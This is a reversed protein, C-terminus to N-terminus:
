MGGDQRNIRKMRRDLERLGANDAILTGVYLPRRTDSDGGMYSPQPARHAQAELVRSVIEEVNNAAEEKHYSSFQAVGGDRQGLANALPAVMEWTPIAAALAAGIHRMAQPQELPVIAENLGFEGARFLGDGTIMGGLKFQPVDAAGYKINGIWKEWDGTDYRKVLQGKKREDGDVIDLNYIYYVVPEGDKSMKNENIAIRSGTISIDGSVDHWFDEHGYKSNTATQEWSGTKENWANSAAASYQVKGNSLTRKAYGEKDSKFIDVVSGTLNTMNAQHRAVISESSNYVEKLKKAQEQAAQLAQTQKDVIETFRGGQLAMNNNIAVWADDLNEYVSGPHDKMLADQITQPLDSFKMYGLAAADVESLDKDTILKLNGWGNDATIGLAALANKTETDVRGMGDITDQKLADMMNNYDTESNIKLDKLKEKTADDIDTWKLETDSKLLGFKLDAAELLKDHNDDYQEKSNIGLEALKEIQKENLDDWSLLSNDRMLGIDSIALSILASSAKGYEEESNIGLQRLRAIQVINLDDWGKVVGDQILGLSNNSLRLLLDANNDYEDISDIGLKKLCEVQVASLNDYGVITTGVQDTFLKKTEADMTSFARRISATNEDGWHAWGTLVEGTLTIFGDETALGANQLQKKLDDPLASWLENNDILIETLYNQGSEQIKSLVDNTNVLVVGGEQYVEAGIAELFKRVDGSVEDSSWETIAKRWQEGLKNIAVYLHENGEEDLASQMTIGANEFAAKLAESYDDGLLGTDIEVGAASAFMSEGHLKGYNTIVDLDKFAQQLNTSMRALVEPDLSALLQHMTQAGTLYGTDTITASTLGTEQNQALNIGIGKLAEITAASVSTLDIGNLNYTVGKIAQSLATEDLTINVKEDGNYGAGKSLIIGAEKLSMKEFDSIDGLDYDVSREHGSKGANVAQTAVTVTGDANINVGIGNLVKMADANARLQEVVIEEGGVEVTKPFTMTFGTVNDRLKEVDISMEYMAESVASIYVGTATGLEDLASTDIHTFDVGEFMRRAYGTIAENTLAAIDITPVDSNLLEYAKWNMLASQYSSIYDHVNIVAQILESMTSADAGWSQIVETATDEGVLRIYEMARTYSNFYDDLRALQMPDMDSIRDKWLKGLDTTSKGHKLNEIEGSAYLSYLQSLIKEEDPFELDIEYDKGSSTYGTGYLRDGNKRYGATSYGLLKKIAYDVQMTDQKTGGTNTASWDFVSRKGIDEVKRKDVWSWFNMDPLINEYIYREADWQAKRAQEDTAGQQKAQDYAWGHDNVMKSWEESAVNAANYSGTAYMLGNTALAAVASSVLGIIAGPVAGVSGGAIAGTIASTVADAIITTLAGTVVLNQAGVEALDWGSYLNGSDNLKTGNIGDRSLLTLDYGSAGSLLKQYLGYEDFGQSGVDLAQKLAFAVDLGSIGVANPTLTYKVAKGAAGEGTLMRGLGEKLDLLISDKLTSAGADTYWGAKVAKLFDDYGDGFVEKAINELEKETQKGSMGEFDYGRLFTDWLDDATKTGDALSDSFERVRKAFEIYNRVSESDGNFAFNKFLLEELDDNILADYLPTKAVRGGEGLISDKAAHSYIVKEIQEENLPTGFRSYNKITNDIQEVFGADSSNLAERLVNKYEDSLTSSNFFDELSTFTQSSGSSKIFNSAKAFTNSLANKGGSIANSFTESINDAVGKASTKLKDALRAFLGKNFADVVDDSANFSVDSAKVIGDFVDELSNGKEIQEVLQDAIDKGLKEAADQTADPTLKEAVEELAERVPKDAATEGSGKIADVVDSIDEEGAGFKVTGEQWPLATRNGFGSATNLADQYEKAAKKISAIDEKSLGFDRALKADVYESSGNTGYESALDTYMRGISQRLTEYDFPTNTTFASMDGKSVARWMDVVGTRGYIGELKEATKILTNYMDSYDGNILKVADYPQKVTDGLALTLKSVLDNYQNLLNPGSDNLEKSAKSLYALLADFADGYTKSDQTFGAFNYKVNAGNILLENGSVLLKNSDLLTDKITTIESQLGAIDGSTVAENFRTTVYGLLSDVSGSIREAQAISSADFLKDQVIKLENKVANGAERIDSRVDDLKYFRSEGAGYGALTETGGVPLANESMLMRLTMARYLDDTMNSFAKAFQERQEDTATIFIVNTNNAISRKDVTKVAKAVKQLATNTFDNIVVKSTELETFAKKFAEYVQDHVGSATNNAGSWTGTIDTYALMLDNNSAALAAKLQNMLEPHTSGFVKEVDSVNVVSKIVGEELSTLSQMGLKELRELTATASSTATATHTLVNYVDGELNLLGKISMAMTGSSNIGSMGDIFDTEFITRLTPTLVESMVEGAAKQFASTLSTAVEKQSGGFAYDLLSAASMGYSTYAINSNGYKVAALLTRRLAKTDGRLPKLLKIGDRLAAEQNISYEAILGTNERVFLTNNNITNVENKLAKWYDIEPGNKNTGELVENFQDIFTLWSDNVATRLTDAQPVNYAHTYGNIKITDTNDKIVSLKDKIQTLLDNAKADVATNLKDVEIILRKNAEFLNNLSTPDNIMSLTKILDGPAEGLTGENTLADTLMTRLASIRNESTYNSLQESLESLLQNNKYLFQIQEPSGIEEAIKKEFDDLAEVFSDYMDLAPKEVISTIDAPAAGKNQKIIDDSIAQSLKKISEDSIRLDKAESSKALDHTFTLAKHWEPNTSKLLRNYEVNAIHEIRQGIDATSFGDRIAGAIKNYYEKFASGNTIMAQKEASKALRDAASALELESTYNTDTYSLKELKGTQTRLEKKINDLQKYQDASLTYEGVKKINNEISSILKNAATNTEESFIGEFKSLHNELAAYTDRGTSGRQGAVGLANRGSEILATTNKALEDRMNGVEELLENSIKVLENYEVSKGTSYTAGTSDLYEMVRTVFSIAKDQALRQPSAVVKRLMGVDNSLTDLIDKTEAYSAGFRSLLSTSTTVQANLKRVSTKLPEIETLLLSSTAKNGKSLEIEALAAANDIQTQIKIVEKADKEINTLLDLASKYDDYSFSAPLGQRVRVNTIDELAGKLKNFSYNQDTLLATIDGGSVTTSVIRDVQGTLLTGLTNTATDLAAKDVGTLLTSRVSKDISKVLDVADSSVALLKATYETAVKDYKGEKVAELIQNSVETNRLMLTTAKKSFGEFNNTLKQMEQTAKVSNTASMDVERTDGALLQRSTLRKLDKANEEALANLRIQNLEIARANDNLDILQKLELEYAERQKKAELLAATDADTPNSGVAKQLAQQKKIADLYENTKTLIEQQRKAEAARASNIDSTVKSILEDRRRIAEIGEDIKETLERKTLDADPGNPDIPNAKRYARWNAIHALVSSGTIFLLPLMTNLTKLQETNIRTATVNDDLENTLDPMEPFRFEPLEFFDAWNIDNFAELTKSLDDPDERIQFVEDFSMLWTKAAKKATKKSKKETDDLAGSMKAAWNDAISSYDENLSDEWQSLMANQEEMRQRYEETVLTSDDTVGTITKMAKLGLYASALAAGLTFVSATMGKVVANSNNIVPIVSTLTTGFNVFQKTTWLVTNGAFQITKGVTNFILLGAVVDSLELSAGTFKNFVSLVKNGATELMNIGKLLYDAAVTLSMISAYATKAFSKLVTGNETAFTHITEGLNKFAAVASIVLGELEAREEETSTIDGLITEIMGGTGARMSVERWSDLTDRISRIKGELRDLTGHFFSESIILADDKITETMGGLTEAIKASAGEYREKLGDLIAVVAKSANINLNGLNKIEQGTLNLQEKLIDYIPINANALQRVEEAALKGKTLVQGLATVIRQMNEETAGTAAATDSIVKLVSKSSNIPVSMAQLYQAMSIASETSFPTYAAFDELERIYEQAQASSEAFYEMSIKSAELNNRFTLIASSASTIADTVGYIAASIALGSAVRKFSRLNHTIDAWKAEFASAGLTIANMQKNVTKTVDNFERTFDKDDLNMQLTVNELLSM